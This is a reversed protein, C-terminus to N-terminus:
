ADGSRSAARALEERRGYFHGDWEAGGHDLDEDRRRLGRRLPLWAAPYCLPGIDAVMTSSWAATATSRDPYTYDGGAAVVAATLMGSKATYPRLALSFAGSSATSSGVPVDVKSWGITCNTIAPANPHGAAALVKRGDCVCPERRHGWDRFAPLSWVPSSRTAPRSLAMERFPKVDVTERRM